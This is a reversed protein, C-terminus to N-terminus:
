GGPRTALAVDDLGAARAASIVTIILKYQATEDGRVVVRQALSDEKKRRLAETLGGLTM